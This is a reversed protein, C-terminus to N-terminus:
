KKLVAKAISTSYPPKSLDLFILFSPEINNFAEVKRWLIMSAKEKNIHM